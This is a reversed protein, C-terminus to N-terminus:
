WSVTLNVAGTTTTKFRLLQPNASFQFVSGSAIEFFPDTGVTPTYAVNATPSSAIAMYVIGGSTRIRCECQGNPVHAKNLATWNGSTATSSSTMATPM